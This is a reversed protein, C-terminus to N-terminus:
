DGFLARNEPTDEYIQNAYTSWNTAGKYVAESGVPVYIRTSANIGYFAQTSYLLTITSPATFRKFTYVLIKCSYFCQHDIATIGAPITIKNIAFCQSFTNDSLQGSLNSQLVVSSLSHCKFFAQNGISTVSDPLVISELSTCSEFANYEIKTTSSTICLDILSYCSNCTISKITSIPPFILRSLSYCNLFCGTDISTVQNPISISQLSYANSFVYTSLSTCSSPINLNTIKTSSFATSGISLIGHKITVLSLSTCLNFAYGIIQTVNDGIYLSYLANRYSQTNGGTFSTTDSGNGFSYTGSGSNIWMTIEYTGATSYTHSTNLNGSTTTTYDASGDGWSITLTSGDSKYFYVPLSYGTTPTITVFAHTKNDTTNYIAGIDLDRQINTLDTYNWAYFTLACSKKSTAVLSTSIDPAIVTEGANVYREIIKNVLEGNEVALYLFRVKYTGTDRFIKPKVIM